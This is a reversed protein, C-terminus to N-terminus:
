LHNLIFAIEEEKTPKVLFKQVNAFVEVRRIDLESTSSTLVYVKYPKGERQMKQLFDWGNMEPMNLDLFIVDPRYEDLASFAAVPDTFDLILCAPAHKEIMKIMIFNSIEVDDVLLVRKM